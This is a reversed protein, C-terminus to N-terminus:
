CRSRVNFPLSFSCQHCVCSNPKIVRLWAKIVFYLCCQMSFPNLITALDNPIDISSKFSFVWLIHFRYLLCIKWHTPFIYRTSGKYFVVCFIKGMCQFIQMKNLHWSILARRFGTILASLLFTRCIDHGVCWCAAVCRLNQLSIEYEYRM